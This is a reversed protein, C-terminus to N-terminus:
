RRPEPFRAPSRNEHCKREHRAFQNRSPPPTGVLLQPSLAPPSPSAFGEKPDRQRLDFPPQDIAYNDAIRARHAFEPATETTEPWIRPNVLVIGHVDFDQVVIIIERGRKRNRVTSTSAYTGRQDVIPAPLEVMSRLTGMLASSVDFRQASGCVLAHFNYDNYLIEVYLPMTHDVRSIASGGLGRRIRGDRACQLYNRWLYAGMQGECRSGFSPKGARRGLTDGGVGRRCRGGGDGSDTRRWSRFHERLGDGARNGSGRLYNRIHHDTLWGGFWGQAGFLLV